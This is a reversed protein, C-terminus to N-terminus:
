AELFVVFTFRLDLISLFTPILAFCCAKPGCFNGILLVFLSSVFGLDFQAAGGGFLSGLPEFCKM